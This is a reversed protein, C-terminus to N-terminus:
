NQRWPLGAAKWGNSRGRHREEDLDGEFGGAINHAAKFGVATMAVAASRSRVGSRCLFFLNADESVGAEKVAQAVTATFEENVNMTPFTQWEICFLEKGLASTDPVGVFSWEANTRVDILVSDKDELLVRWAEDVTVDGAYDEPPQGQILAPHKSTGSGGM